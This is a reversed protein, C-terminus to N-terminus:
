QLLRMDRPVDLIDCVEVWQAVSPVLTGKEIKSVTGQTVGWVNALEVQTIGLDKRFYSIVMSATHNIDQQSNVVVGFKNALRSFDFETAPAQKESKTKKPPVGMFRYTNDIWYTSILIKKGTSPDINESDQRFV